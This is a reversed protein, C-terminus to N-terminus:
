GITFVIKSPSVYEKCYVSQEAEYFDDPVFLSIQKQHFEIGNPCHPLTLQLHHSHYQDWIIAQQTKLIEFNRKVILLVRSSEDLILVAM